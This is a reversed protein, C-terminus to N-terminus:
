FLDHYKSTQIQLLLFRPILTTSPQRVREEITKEERSHSYFIFLIITKDYICKGKNAQTFIELPTSYCPPSLMIYKKIIDDIIVVLGEGDQYFAKVQIHDFKNQAVYDKLRCHEPRSRPSSPLDRHLEKGRKHQEFDLPLSSRYM